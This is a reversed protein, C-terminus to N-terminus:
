NGYRCWQHSKGRDSGRQWYNFQYLRNKVPASYVLMPFALLAAAVISAIKTKM